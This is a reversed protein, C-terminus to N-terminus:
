DVSENKCGILPHYLSYMLTVVNTPLLENLYPM